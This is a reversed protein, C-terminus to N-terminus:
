KLSGKAKEYDVKSLLADYLANFYNVQSEKLSTEANLVELNTGVGSEYKIKSVRYVEEALEINKKQTSLSIISNQLTTYTSELELDIGQQVMFLDNKSKEVSLKAQQIRFNKQLGDFIPINAQLGIISTPYWDESADFFNFENRQAQQSFSGYLIISPLYSMKHRKLDLASLKLQTQVLSYEIRSNYDFNNTSISDSVFSINALKDALILETKQEMGMQFKLLAYTLQVLSNIKEKETLLNNYTLTLRDVDIKEVYGNENLLKTDDVLKKIREINADLLKKREENVLVAYYAKTVAATTEIKSRTSAKKTLELYVKSAQLGVIYSGDFLLQSFNISASANYQTGFQVPLYTGAPAGFFEGPILSTPIEVFDKVDISGSIQPFGIATIERLKNKAIKEDLDANQISVHNQSAYDIAQQLSFSHSPNNSNEQSFVFSAFIFHLVLLSLTFSKM